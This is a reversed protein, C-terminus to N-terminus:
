NGLLLLSVGADSKPAVAFIRAIGPRSVGNYTNFWGGLLAKGNDLGLISFVPLFATGSGPNFTADLSGDANLRAVGSYPVTFFGGMLVKNHPQSALAMIPNGTIIPIFTNDLTGGATIRAIGSRAPPPPASGTYIQTFAGCIMINGDPQLFMDSPPLDMGIVCNTPPNPGFTPDSGGNSQLRTLFGTLTSGGLLYSGLILYKDGVPAVRTGRIDTGPLTLQFNFAADLSGDSNLRAVANRNSGHVNSFDGTIMMGNPLPAVQALHAVEGDQTTVIPNFAKDLSANADANFRALSTRAFGNAEGFYGGALLKGDGQVALSKVYGDVGSNTSTDLTGDPNLRALGRRFQGGVGTFDGGVWVKGDGQAALAYVIAANTNASTWGSYYGTLNGNSDM